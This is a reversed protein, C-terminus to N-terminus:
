ATSTTLYLIIRQQFAQIHKLITDRLGDLNKSQLYEMIQEHEHCVARYHDRVNGAFDTRDGYSLYALRSTERRVDKLARVLYDNASCEGFLIHFEYNAWVMGLLDKIEMATEVRKHAEQMLSLHPTPDQRMALNAAGVEFIRLAEFIAKINQIKLPRVSFGRQPEAEVMSESALRLLAERIPTRGIKLQEVLQREDLHQGPELEMSIIKEHITHYAQAALPPKQCNTKRAM